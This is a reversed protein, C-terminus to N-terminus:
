LLLNSLHEGKDCDKNGSLKDCADDTIRITWYCVKRNDDDDDHRFWGDETVSSGLV